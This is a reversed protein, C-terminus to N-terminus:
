KLIKRNRIWGKPIKTLDGLSIEEIDGEKTVNYRGALLIWEKTEKILFGMESVWYDENVAWEISSLENRWVKELPSITDAWEIYIKPYKKKM